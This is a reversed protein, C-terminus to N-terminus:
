DEDEEELSSYESADAAAAVDTRMPNFRLPIGRLWHSTGEYNSEGGGLVSSNRKLTASNSGEGAGLDPTELKKAFTEFDVKREFHPRLEPHTMARYLLDLYSPSTATFTM